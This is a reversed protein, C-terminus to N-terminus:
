GIRGTPGVPGVGTAAREPPGVPGMAVNQYIYMVYSYIYMVYSYIYMVYVDCMCIYICLMDDLENVLLM